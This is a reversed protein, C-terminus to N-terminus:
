KLGYREQIWEGKSVDSCNLFNLKSCEECTICFYRRYPIKKQKPTILFSFSTNTDKLSQFKLLSHMIPKTEILVREELETKDKNKPFKFNENM